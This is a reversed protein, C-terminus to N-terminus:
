PGVTVDPFSAVIAFWFSSRTAILNGASDTVTAGIGDADVTVTTGALTDEISRAPTTPWARTVGEITAVVVRAGPALREDELAGSGVPFPTLGQDVRDQYGVFPDREYNGLRPRAMVQTAPHTETWQQWSTTQSPIVELEAAALPGALARGPVQWWYSGTERDIMVLDNEHLASTNSFSLVEDDLRRDFVVGSGCLPCYSILVPVQAFQDNVIEHFNLIRVPFAWAAGDTDVFGVVLDDGALWGASAAPEYDPTDIPPIADLLSDILAQDAENLRVPGGGFTDFIITSLDVIATSPDLRPITHRSGLAIPRDPTPVDDSTLGTAQTTAETPREGEAQSTGCAAATIGLGLLLAILRM